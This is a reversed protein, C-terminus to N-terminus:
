RMGYPITHHILYCNSQTKGLRKPKGRGDENLWQEVCILKGTVSAADDQCIVAGKFLVSVM